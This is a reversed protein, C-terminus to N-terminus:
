KALVSIIDLYPLCAYNFSFKTDDSCFLWWTKCSCAVHVCELVSLAKSGCCVQMKEREQYQLIEAELSRIADASEELKNRLMDIKAALSM